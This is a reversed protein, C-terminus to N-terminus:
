EKNLECGVEIIRGWSHKIRGANNFRLFIRQSHLFKVQMLWPLFAGNYCYNNQEKSCQYQKRVPECLALKENDM